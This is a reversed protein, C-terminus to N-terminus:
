GIYGMSLAYALSAVCGATFGILGAGLLDQMHYCRKEKAAEIAVDIGVCYCEDLDDVVRSDIFGKDSLHALTTSHQEKLYNITNM